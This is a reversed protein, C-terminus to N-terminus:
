RAPAREGQESQEGAIPPPPTTEWIDVPEDMVVAPLLAGSDDMHAAWPEGVTSPPIAVTDQEANDFLALLGTLDADTLAAAACRDAGLIVPLSLLGDSTV